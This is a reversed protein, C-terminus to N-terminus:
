EADTAFRTPRGFVDIERYASYADSNPLDFFTFRIQDVGRALPEKDSRGLRVHMEGPSEDGFHIREEDALLFFKDSDVHSFEVRYHQSRRGQEGGSVSMIAHIDYGAQNDELNLDYTVSMADQPCLAASGSYVAPEAGDYITGNNLARSDSGDRGKAVSSMVRLLTPADENILDASSALFSDTGGIRHSIQLKGTKVVAKNPDALVFEVAGAQPNVRAAKGQTLRVSRNGGDPSTSANPTLEVEGRLVQVEAKGTKDVEVSFETGLDTILTSPTAIEFGKAIAPVMAGLRGVQLYGRKASLIKFRAPGDLLVTAGDDFRMEVQGTALELVSDSSLRHGERVEATSGAVTSVWQCDWAGIVSAVTQASATSPKPFDVTQKTLDINRHESARPMLFVGVIVWFLVAAIAASISIWSLPARLFRRTPLSVNSRQDLAEPGNRNSGDDIAGEGVIIKQPSRELTWKLSAAMHCYDIYFNMASETNILQWLRNRDDDTAEEDQVLAVLDIVQARTQRSLSM